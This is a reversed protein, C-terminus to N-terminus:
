EYIQAVLITILVLWIFPGAAFFFLTKQSLTMDKLMKDWSQKTHQRALAATINAGAM